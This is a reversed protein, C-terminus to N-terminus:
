KMTKFISGRVASSATGLQVLVMRYLELLFHQSLPQLAEGTTWKRRECRKQERTFGLLSKVVGTRKRCGRLAEPQGQTPPHSPPSPNRRCLTRSSGNLVDRKADINKVAANFLFIPLEGITSSLKVENLVCSEGKFVCQCM